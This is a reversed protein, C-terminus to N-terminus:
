NGKKRGTTPMPGGTGPLGYGAGGPLIGPPAGTAGTAEEEAAGRKPKEPEAPVYHRYDDLDSVENRAHLKGTADFILFEGPATLADESVRGLHPITEGGLIDVVLADTRFQYKDLKRKESFVPHTVEVEKTLNVLSGRHVDLEVPVDVAKVPDLKVGLMKGVVERTPVNFKDIMSPPPSTVKGAYFWEATPLSAVESPQSWESVLTRRKPETTAQKKLRDRVAPALSAQGPRWARNAPNNPDDLSIRVRYRYKHGIEAKMDAFRILKYKPIIPAQGYSSGGYGSMGGMGMMGGMGPPGGSMGPPGGSMGPPGGSMGPPGGGMGSPSGMGPPGGGLTPMGGLGPMGAMGPIGSGPVGGTYDEEEEEEMAEEAAEEEEGTDSKPVFRKRKIQPSMLAQTTSALPIDPHTLAPWLDRALFPPVPHTLVGFTRTNVVPDLYTPDLVEAPAGDMLATFETVFDVTNFRLTVWKDAPASPDTVDLRQVQFSEFRPFDREPNYDLSDAFTRKYEDVLKKYPVTAMVIIAGGTRQIPDAGAPQYYIHSDEEGGETAGPRSMGMGPMGGGLLGGPPGSMGPMVPGGPMGPPGGSLLDDEADKGKKTSKAKGKGKTDTGPIMGGAGPLGYGPPMGPPGQPAKTKAPTKKKVAKPKEGTGDDPAPLPDVETEDQRTYAIPGYYSVVKLSAPPSIAPDSRPSLKRFDPKNWANALSYFNPDVKQNLDSAVQAAVQATIQREKDKTQMDQWTDPKNLVTNTIEQGKQRLKDPTNDSPIGSLSYGFYIVMIALGAVVALAFKECHRIFWGKIGGEGFDIKPKKM